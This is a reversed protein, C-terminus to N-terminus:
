AEEACADIVPVDGAVAQLAEILAARPLDWGLIHHPNAAIALLPLPTWVRLAHGAAYWAAVARTTAFLHAPHDAVLYLPAPHGRLGELLRDTVAGPVYVVRAGAPWGPLASILRHMAARAPYGRTEGNLCWAGIEGRDRVGTLAARAAAEWAERAEAEAAEGALAPLAFRAVMPAVAEAVLAPTRGLVPSVALVAADVLGPIAAAARDFAGDVLCLQAGHATLRDLVLRVHVRQRVGALMVRGPELVRVIAVDGLPSGIPLVELWELPADSQALAEEASAVLAGAPVVIDPKPVGLVTDLREGDLGISCLGVTLGGAGTHREELTAPDRGAAQAQRIVFNVATTKGAHKSAGIFAIRRWGRMLARGVLDVSM